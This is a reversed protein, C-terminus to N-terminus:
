AKHTGTCRKNESLGYPSTMKLFNFMSMPVACVHLMGYAFDIKNNLNFLSNVYVNNM